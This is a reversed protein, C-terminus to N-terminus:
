RACSKSRSVMPSMCALSSAKRDSCCARRVASLDSAQHDPTRADLAALRRGLTATALVSQRLLGLTGPVLASVVGSPGAQGLTRTRSLREASVAPGGLVQGGIVQR